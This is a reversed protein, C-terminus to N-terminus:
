LTEDKFVVEVDAKLQAKILKKITEACNLVGLMDVGYMCHITFVGDSYEARSNLFLHRVGGIIENVYFVLNKYYVDIDIDEISLNEYRIRLIFESLGYRLCVTKKYEEIIDYPVLDYSVLTVEMSRKESNADTKFITTDKLEKPVEIDKILDELKYNQM